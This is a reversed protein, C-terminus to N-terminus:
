PVSYEGTRGPYALFLSQRILQEYIIGLSASGADAGSIGHHILQGILPFADIAGKYETSFMLVGIM